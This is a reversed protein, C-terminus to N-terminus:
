KGEENLRINSENHETTADDIKKNMREEFQNHEKQLKKLTNKMEDFLNKYKEFEEALLDGQGQGFLNLYIVACLIFYVMKSRAM